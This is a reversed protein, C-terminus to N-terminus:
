VVSKLHTVHSQHLFSYSIKNPLFTSMKHLYKQWSYTTKVFNEKYLIKMLDMM